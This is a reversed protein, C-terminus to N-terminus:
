MVEEPDLSIRTREGLDSLFRFREESAQLALQITKTETIDLATGAFTMAQRRGDKETFHAKGRSLVWRISGDPRVVRCEVQYPRPNVPDVAHAISGAVHARDEPHISTLISEFEHEDGTVGFIERVREDWYIKGEILDYSWWGLPVTQFA